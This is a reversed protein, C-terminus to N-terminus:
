WPFEVDNYVNDDDAVFTGATTQTVSAKTTATTDGGDTDSGIPAATSTTDGGDKKDSKDSNNGCACLCTLMAVALLLAFWKKM